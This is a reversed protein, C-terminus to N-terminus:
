VAYIVPEGADTVSVEIQTDFVQSLVDADLVQAPVGSAVVAGANLLMVQDSFRAALNLDHVVSVVVLDQSEILDRQLKCQDVVAGIDLSANFEDLLVVPTQQAMCRAFGVRQMEGGSLTAVLRSALRSSGVLELSEGVIDRDRKTLTQWWKLNAFRGLMVYETVTMGKPRELNQPLYSFLSARNSPGIPNGGWEVSGVAPVQGLLARLFTTKGSGNPGVISTWGGQFTCSVTELVTKNGYGVNSLDVVLM